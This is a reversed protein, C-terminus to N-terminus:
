QRHVSFAYCPPRYQIQSQHSLETLEEIRVGAHRLVEVM